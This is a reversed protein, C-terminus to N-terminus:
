PLADQSKGPKGKELGLHGIFYDLVSEQFQRFSSFGFDGCNQLMFPHPSFHNVSIVYGELDSSALLARPDGRVRFIRKVYSSQMAQEKSLIRGELSQHFFDFKIRKKEEKGSILNLLPKEIDASIHLDQGDYAFSYEGKEFHTFLLSSLFPKGGEQSVTKSFLMLRGSAFSVSRTSGHSFHNGSKEGDLLLPQFYNTPVAFAVRAEFLPLSIAAPWKSSAYLNSSLSPFQGLFSKTAELRERDEKEMKELMSLYSVSASAADCIRCM